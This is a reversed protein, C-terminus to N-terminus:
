SSHFAMEMTAARDFDERLSEYISRFVQYLEQYLSHNEWNPEYRARLQVMQRLSRRVDPYLGLGMGALVADGFPAGVSVQPLLVPLGLVDAKIQNWLNSRTGGGVSRLEDLDVGARRAVEVNHRLAFATGELIARILAGRPTALTLGFFVGRANTHWLPSREGMMYPLFIVGNSGPTVQGAQMTLLDYSDLGLRAGANVEAVGFQDRYWRLSAGSAAMAGLLLHIGPVAHYMAIFAPETVGGRNPIILVTSTGTMEAAVGPDVVGSELAAAASDVTGAMVPTGPALGTEIAAQSTIEGLIHHGVHIPPFQNPEVGCVECLETSWQGTQWNLLQLLSAHASDMAYKNTLRHGVYGNVQVFMHTEAFRDPEHTRYWLLKPAVYFPDARNGTVREITSGGLRERLKAAETEARRDMWILAPRLPQGDHNLPLMTPAQSSIAVGAVRERAEPVKALAQHVAVCAARWWDEPDQEAWGPHTHHIGYESKGVAQLRGDPTFLAAKTGTTGVDLGLLLNDLGV